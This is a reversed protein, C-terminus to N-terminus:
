ELSYSPALPLMFLICTGEGPTSEAHITGGHATIIAKVISLGLGSGGTSGSRARDARYFRDFINPLDAPDIGTGTDSVWIALNKGEVRAGVTLAGGAPTHRRANDLLNLLVQTIRDGDALVLPTTPAIQNHLSIGAQECEPGIVALMEDVLEHVDLPALDLRVHESELSSMQQMDGVLRRLRQVERGILQATEQRAKPEHIVDDALAESLGQIATLPTILDHAINAILDRRVQEQHHLETIDAEITDAMANFTLALRGLEDEYTPPTVREGYKGSKMQEAAATLATLPRTLKHALMLSFIFVVLAVGLSTILIAQNVSVLFENPSFGQPYLQPEALLMAGIIRGNDRVPLAVYQGSFTAGDISGQLDGGVEQGHLAQQLAQQVVPADANSLKIDAASPVIHGQANSDVVELLDPSNLRLIGLFDWSNGAESYLEVIERASFTARTRLLDRETSYFYNQVVFAIVVVLVLIAGLAVGLYSLILQVRLSMKPCSFHKM